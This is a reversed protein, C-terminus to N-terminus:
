FGLWSKRIKLQLTDPNPIPTIAFTQLDVNLGGYALYTSYDPEKVTYVYDFLEQLDKGAIAECTARFEADTFGRREQLYYKQYLLRMVDDLSRKNGTTHRIAM